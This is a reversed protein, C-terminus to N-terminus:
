SDRAWPQSKGKRGVTPTNASPLAQRAPCRNCKWGGKCSSTVVTQGTPRVGYCLPCHNRCSRGTNLALSRLQAHPKWYQSLTAERLPSTTANQQYFQFDQDGEVRNPNWFPNQSRRPQNGSDRLVKGIFSNTDTAWWQPSPQIFEGVSAVHVGIRRHM